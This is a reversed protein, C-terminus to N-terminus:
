RKDRIGRETVVRDQVVEWGARVNIESPAVLVREPQTRSSYSGTSWRGNDNRDLIIRLSFAGAQMMPQEITCPLSACRQCFVMSNGQFLQVLFPGQYTLASDPLLHLQLDGTEKMANSGIGIRVTDNVAGYIDHLAGPLAVVQANRLAKPGVMSFRRSTGPSREFLVRGALTDAVIVFRSTDLSALPRTATFRQAGNTLAGSPGIGVYYPMAKRVKYTLTDIVGTSDSLEFRFGDIMATDNPWLLLTDRIPNWEEFWTLRGGTRDIDRVIITDANRALVLQWARDASVSESLIAQTEAEAMFLDLDLSRTTPLLVEEDAFAIMETPLDYRYNANQDKLGRVHYRGERLHTLLFAGDKDTRTFYAPRHDRIGDSLSDPYLLVLADPMAASTLADAVHGSLTLSDLVDGTSFVYTLGTAPNNETIDVIADGFNFTYTTNAALPSKLLVSVSRGNEIVVEPDKELPPSILLREKLRDARIREDMDLRFRDGTFNLSGNPPDAVLVRPPQVDKDGGQLERIQACSVVITALFLVM